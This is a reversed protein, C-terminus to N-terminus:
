KIHLKSLLKEAWSFVKRKLFDINESFNRKMEDPFDMVNFGVTFRFKEDVNVTAVIMNDLCFFAFEQKKAKFAHLWQKYLESRLFKHYEVSRSYIVGAHPKVTEEGAIKQIHYFLASNTEDDILQTYANLENTDLSQVVKSVVIQTGLIRGQIDVFIIFEPCNDHPHILFNTLGCPKLEVNDISLKFPQVCYPCVDQFSLSRVSGISAAVM